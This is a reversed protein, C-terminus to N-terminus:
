SPIKNSARYQTLAQQYALPAYQLKARETQEGVLAAQIRPYQIDQEELGRNRTTSLEEGTRTSDTKAVEGQRAITREIAQRRAMQRKQLPDIFWDQAYGSTPMPGEQGREQEGLLVGRQNLTGRTERTEEQTRRTDETLNTALDEKRYGEGRSLDEENYRSGTKYDQEIYKKALEVDGKADRLKQAYYPALRDMAAKEAAAWDFNFPPAAESGASGGGADLPPGGWRLYENYDRTYRGNVEGENAVQNFYTGAM